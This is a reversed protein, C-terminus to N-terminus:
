GNSTRRARRRRLARVALVIWFLVAVLMVPAALLMLWGMVFAAYLFDGIDTGALRCPHASGEDIPCDLANAIGSSVIVSVLPAVSAVTMVVLVVLGIRSALTTRLPTM